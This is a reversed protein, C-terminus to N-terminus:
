KKNQWRPDNIKLAYKHVENIFITVFRPDGIFKSLKSEAKAAGYCIGLPSYGETTLVREITEQDNPKIHFYDFLEPLTRGCRYNFM